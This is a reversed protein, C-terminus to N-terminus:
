SVRVCRFRAHDRKVKEMGIDVFVQAAIKHCLQLTPLGNPMQTCGAYTCIILAWVEM